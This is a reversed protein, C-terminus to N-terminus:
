LVSVPLLSSLRNADLCLRQLSGAFATAGGGLKSAPTLPNSVDAASPAPSFPAAVATAAAVKVAAMVAMAASSLTKFQFDFIQM